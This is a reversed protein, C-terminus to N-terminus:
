IEILLQSYCLYCLCMSFDRRMCQTISPSGWGIHIRPLHNAQDSSWCVHWVLVLPESLFGWDTDVISKVFDHHDGYVSLLM